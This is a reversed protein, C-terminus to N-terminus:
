AYRFYTSAAKQYASSQPALVRFVKAYEILRNSIVVVENNGTTYQGM